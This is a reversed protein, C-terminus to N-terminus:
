AIKRYILAMSAATNEDIALVEIQTRNIKPVWIESGNVNKKIAEVVPVEIKAKLSRIIKKIKEEDFLCTEM